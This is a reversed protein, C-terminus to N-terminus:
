LVCSLNKSKFSRSDRTSLQLFPIPEFIKSFISVTEQTGKALYTFINIGLFALLLIIIIWTQLTIKQFFGTSPSPSPGEPLPTLDPLEDTVMESVSRYGQSSM